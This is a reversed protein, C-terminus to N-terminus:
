NKSQPGKKEPEEPQLEELDKGAAWKRGAFAPYTTAYRYARFLPPGGPPGGRGPGGPGAAVSRQMAQLQKKQEETLLM